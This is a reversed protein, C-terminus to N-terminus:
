CRSFVTIGLREWQSNMVYYGRMLVRVGRRIRRAVTIVRANSGINELRDGPESSVAELADASWIQYWDVPRALAAATHSFDEV